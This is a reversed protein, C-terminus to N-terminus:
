PLEINTSRFLCSGIDQQITMPRSHLHAKKLASEKDWTSPVAFYVGDTDAEILAMGRGQLSNIVHSLLESGRKTVEDAAGLDAFLAM